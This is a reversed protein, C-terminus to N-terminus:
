LCSSDVRGTRIQSATGGGAHAGRRRVQGAGEEGGGRATLLHISSHQCGKGKKCPGTRWGWERAFPMKSAGRRWGVRGCAGEAM